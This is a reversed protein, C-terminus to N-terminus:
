RCEGPLTQKYFLALVPLKELDGINKLIRVPIKNRVSLRLVLNKKKIANYKLIGWM